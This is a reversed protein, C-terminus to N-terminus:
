NMQIKKAKKAMVIVIGVVLAGIGQEFMQWCFDIILHKMQSHVMGFNFTFAILYLFFGIFAGITFRMFATKFYKHFHDFVISLILSIVIYIISLLGFFLPAPLTIKSFDNLLLGHWTYSLGLM